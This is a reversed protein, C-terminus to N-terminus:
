YYSHASEAGETVVLYDNMAAAKAPGLNALETLTGSLLASQDGILALTSEPGLVVQWPLGTSVSPCTRGLELHCRVFTSPCGHSIRRLKADWRPEVHRFSWYSSQTFACVVSVETAVVKEVRAGIGAKESRRPSAAHAVGSIVQFARSHIM